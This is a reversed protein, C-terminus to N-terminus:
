PCINALKAGSASIMVVRHKLRLATRQAVEVSVAVLGPEGAELRLEAQALAAEPTLGPEAAM